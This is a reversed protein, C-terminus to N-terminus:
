ISCIGSSMLWCFDEIRQHLCFNECLSTCMKGQPFSAREKTNRGVVVKYVSPVLYRALNLKLVLWGWVGVWLGPACFRMHLDCLQLKDYDVLNLTAVLKYFIEVM